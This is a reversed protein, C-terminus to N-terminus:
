KEFKKKLEKFEEMRFSPLRSHEFDWKLTLYKSYDPDFKYSAKDQIEEETAYKKELYEEYKDELDRKIIVLPKHRIESLIIRISEYCFDGINHYGTEIRLVNVYVLQHNCRACRVDRYLNDVILREIYKIDMSTLLKDFEYTREPKISM